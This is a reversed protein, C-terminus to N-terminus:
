PYNCHHTPYSATCPTRVVSKFATKVLVKVQLRQEKSEM